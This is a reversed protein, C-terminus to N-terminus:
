VGPAQSEVGEAAAVAADALEDAKQEIAQAVAAAEPSGTQTAVDAATNSTMNIVSQAVNSVADSVANTAVESVQQVAQEVSQAIDGAAEAVVPDAGSNVAAEETMAGVVDDTTVPIGRAAAADVAAAAEAGMPDVAEAPVAGAAVAAQAQALPDIEEPAVGMEQAVKQMYLEHNQLLAALHEFFGKKVAKIYMKQEARENVAQAFKEEESQKQLSAEKVQNVNYLGNYLDKINM